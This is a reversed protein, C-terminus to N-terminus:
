ALLDGVERERREDVEGLGEAGGSLEEFGCTFSCGGVTPNEAGREVKEALVEEGSDGRRGLVLRERGEEEGACEVEVGGDLWRRRWCKRKRRCRADERGAVCDANM